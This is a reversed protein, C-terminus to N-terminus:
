SLGCHATQERLTSPILFLGSPSLIYRCVQYFLSALFAQLLLLLVRVVMSRHIVSGKLLTLPFEITLILLGCLMAASQMIPMKVILKIFM